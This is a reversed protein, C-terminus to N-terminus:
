EGSVIIEAKQFIIYNTVKIDVTAITTLGGNEAAEIVGYDKNLVLGSSLTMGSAGGFLQTTKSIGVKSGIANNTATYPFITSCSSLLLAALGTFALKKM